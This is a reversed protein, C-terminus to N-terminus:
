SAIQRYVCMELDTQAGWPSECGPYNPIAAFSPSAQWAARAADDPWVAETSFAHHAGEMHFATTHCGFQESSRWVNAHLWAFFDHEGIGPALNFRWVVKM